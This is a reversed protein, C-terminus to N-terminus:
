KGGGSSGGIVGGNEFGLSERSEIDERISM